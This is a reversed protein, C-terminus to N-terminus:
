QWLKLMAYAVAILGFLVLAAPLLPLTINPDLDFMLGPIAVFSWAFLGAVAGVLLAPVAICASILIKAPRGYEKQEQEAAKELAQEARTRLESVRTELAEIEQTLAELERRRDDLESVIAIERSRLEALENM